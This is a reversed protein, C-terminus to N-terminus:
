NSETADGKEIITEGVPKRRRGALYDWEDTIYILLVLSSFAFYIQFHFFFLKRSIVKM